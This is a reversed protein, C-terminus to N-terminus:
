PGLREIRWGGGAAPAYRFRDHLRDDRHSWFEWEDPRLRYGGWFPPRPVERGQHERELEAVRADLEDRSALPRSQPSAWAALRSRRPRSAFYEDSEAAPLREVSGAARVQRALEPWHLALAARPNAELERAKASEYSTFFRLGRADAGRLLVVRASPRGSADATALTMAGPEEIGASRADELWRQLLELPEPPLDEERLESV